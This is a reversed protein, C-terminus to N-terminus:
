PTGLLAYLAAVCLSLGILLALKARRASADAGLTGALSLGSGLAICIAAIWMM